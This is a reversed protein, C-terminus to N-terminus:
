RHLAEVTAALLEAGALRFIADFLTKASAFQSAAFFLRTQHVLLACAILVQASACAPVACAPAPASANLRKFSTHKRVIYNGQLLGKQVHLLLITAWMGCSSLVTAPDQLQFILLLPQNPYM